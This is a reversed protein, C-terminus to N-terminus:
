IRKLNIRLIQNQNLADQIHTHTRPISNLILQFTITFIRLNFYLKIDVIQREEIETLEIKNLWFYYIKRSTTLKSFM